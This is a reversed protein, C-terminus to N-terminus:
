YVCCFSTFDNTTMGIVTGDLLELRLEEGCSSWRPRRTASCRRAGPWAWRHGAAALPTKNDDKRPWLPPVSFPQSFNPFIIPFHPFFSNRTSFDHFNLWFNPFGLLWSPFISAFHPFFILFIFDNHVHHFNFYYSCQPFTWYYPQSPSCCTCHMADGLGTSLIPMSWLRHFGRTFKWINHQKPHEELFIPVWTVLRNVFGTIFGM